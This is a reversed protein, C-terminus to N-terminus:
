PGTDGMGQNESLTKQRVDAERAAAPDTSAGIKDTRLHQHTEFRTEGETEDHPLGGYVGVKGFLSSVRKTPELFSKTNRNIIDERM